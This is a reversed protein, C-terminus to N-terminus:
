TRTIVGTFRLKFKLLKKNQVPMNPSYSSVLALGEYTIAPSETTETIRWLRARRDNFFGFIATQASNNALYNAQIEIEQSDNLGSIYEKSDGSDQNTADLFERTFPLDPIDLAEPVVTFAVPSAGIVTEYSVKTGIGLAADTM